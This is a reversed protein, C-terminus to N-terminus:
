FSFRLMFGLRAFQKKIVPIVSEADGHIICSYTCPRMWTIANRGNGLSDIHLKHTIEKTLIVHIIPPGSSVM